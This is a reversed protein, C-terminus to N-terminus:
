TTLCISTIELSGLGHLLLCVFYRYVAAELLMVYASGISRVVECVDRFFLGLLSGAAGGALVWDALNV